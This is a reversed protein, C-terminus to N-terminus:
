ANSGGIAGTPAAETPAVVINDIAVGNLDNLTSIRVVLTQFTVSQSYNTQFGTSRIQMPVQIWWGYRDNLVGQNVIFPASYLAANVFIKSAQLTKSAAYNNLLELYKKWGNETFYRKNAEFERDFNLYDYTFAASVAENVWQLLDSTHIYPQNLPVPAVIRFENDTAFYVPPPKSIFLYLSTAVLLGIAGFILLLCFLIRNFGDRYFDDRLRIVQLDEAAM